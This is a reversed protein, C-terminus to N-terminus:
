HGLEKYFVCQNKKLYRFGPRSNSRGRDGKGKKSFSRGRVTLGEASISKSSSQKDKKGVEYNVLTASMDSYNFIQKSKILTLVFTEYEEDPLFNMLIVAKDEEKIAVDVNVLDALLKTYNNMHDDISLGRKLQFRYLRRKLHLRTV